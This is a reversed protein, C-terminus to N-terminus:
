QVDSTIRGITDIVKILIDIYKGINEGSFVDKEEKTMSYLGSNNM